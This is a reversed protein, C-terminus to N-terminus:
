TRLCDSVQPGFERALQEMLLEIGAAELQHLRVPVSALIEAADGSLTLTVVDPLAPETSWSKVLGTEAVASLWGSLGSQIATRFPAPIDASLVGQGTSFQVCAQIHRFLAVEGASGPEPLEPERLWRRVSCVALYLQPLRPDVSAPCDLWVPLTAEIAPAQALRALLDRQTVPEWRCVDTYPVLESCIAVPQPGFFDQLVPLLASLAKSDSSAPSGVGSATVAAAALLTAEWLSQREPYRPHIQKIALGGVLSGLWDLFMSRDKCSRFLSWVESQDRAALADRLELVPQFGNIVVRDVGM